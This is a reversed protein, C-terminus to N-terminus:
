YPFSLSFDLFLNPGLVSPLPTSITKHMQQTLDSLETKGILHHNERQCTLFSLHLSKGLTVGRGTGPDFDLGQDTRGLTQSSEKGGGWRGEGRATPTPQGTPQPSPSGTSVEPAYLPLHIYIHPLIGNLDLLDRRGHSEM